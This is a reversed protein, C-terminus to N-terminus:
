NQKKRLFRRFVFIILGLILLPVGFDTLIMFFEEEFHIFALGLYRGFMILSVAWCITSLSNILTFRGFNMKNIGAIYIIWVSILPFFKGFFLIRDQYKKFKAEAAHFAEETFGVYKGYKLIIRLGLTRGIFYSITSGLIHAVIATFIITLADFTGNAWAIGCLTLTMQAPFPVGIIDVLLAIAVGWYGYASILETPNM